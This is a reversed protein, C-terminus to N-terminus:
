CYGSYFGFLTPKANLPYCEDNILDFSINVIYTAADDTYQEFIM